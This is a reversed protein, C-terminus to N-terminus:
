FLQTFYNSGLFMNMFTKKTKQNITNNKFRLWNGLISIIKSTLDRPLTIFVGAKLLTLLILLRLIKSCMIKLSM